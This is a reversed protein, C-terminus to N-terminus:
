DAQVQAQTKSVWVDIAGDGVGQAEGSIVFSISGEANALDRVRKPFRVTMEQTDIDYNTKLKLM